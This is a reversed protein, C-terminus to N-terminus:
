DAYSVPNLHKLGFYLIRIEPNFLTTMLIVKIYRISLSLASALNLDKSSKNANKFTSFKDRQSLSTYISLFSFCLAGGGLFYRLSFEFNLLNENKLSSSM